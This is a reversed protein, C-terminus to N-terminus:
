EKRLTLYIPYFGQAAVILRGIWNGFNVAQVGRVLRGVAGATKELEFGWPQAFRELFIEEGLTIMSVPYREKLRRVARRCWIPSITRISKAFEPNRGRLRVWWALMATTFIPPQLLLYHTELYSLYNPVEFHLIGGPKLVRVAEEIVRQPDRVHELTSASYVIDFSNDPFPIQEGAADVIRDPDIDNAALLLRSAKFSVGFGVGDPEIGHADAGFARVWVALNVGYGSGIELTKANKLPAYRQLIAAPRQTRNINLLERAHVEPDDGSITHFFRSGEVALDFVQQPITVPGALISTPAM